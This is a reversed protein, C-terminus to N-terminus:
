DLKITKNHLILLGFNKYLLERNLLNDDYKFYNKVDNKNICQRFEEQLNEICFNSSFFKCVNYNVMQDTMISVLNLNCNMALISYQFILWFPIASVFYKKNNKINDIEFFDLSYLNTDFFDSIKEFDKAHLIQHKSIIGSLLIYTFPNKLNNKSIFSIIFNEIISFNFINSNLIELNEIPMCKHEHLIFYIKNKDEQSFIFCNIENSNILITVFKQSKKQFFKM